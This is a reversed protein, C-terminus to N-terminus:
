ARHQFRLPTVVRWLVSIEMARGRRIMIHFDGGGIKDRLYDLLRRAPFPPGIYFAKGVRRGNAAHYVYLRLRPDRDNCLDDLKNDLRLNTTADPFVRRKRPKKM